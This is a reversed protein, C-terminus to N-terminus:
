TSLQKIHSSLRVALALLTLTPNSRGGTPFVSAGAIYLNEVDHVRCNTNVVGDKETTSMRTTGMQHWATSVGWYPRGDRDELKLRGLGQRGLENGIEIAASKIKDFDSQPPAWNLIAKPQGLADTESDLAVYNDKRPSQESEFRLLYSNSQGKSSSAFGFAMEDANQIFACYEESLSLNVNDAKGLAFKAVNKLGAMGRRRSVALARKENDLEYPTLWFTINLLEAKKIWTDTLRIQFKLGTGDPAPTIERYFEPVVYDDFTIFGAGGSPHDMYYKGILDRTNSIGGTERESALLLRANEIAGCALVYIKADVKFTRQNSLVAFEASEIKGDPGRKLETANAWLIVNINKNRRFDDNFKQGFRTPGSLRLAVTEIIEQDFPLTKSSNKGLLTAPDYQFAGIDCYQQAKEYFPILQDRDIPWGSNPIGSRTEFDIKDLPLCHGGWHNSTGGFMRLRTATLDINDHATLDGDYLQQTDADFDLGGSELLLVKYGANAMENALTIGAPGAGIIAIDSELVINESISRADTFM